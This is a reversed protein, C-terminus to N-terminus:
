PTPERAHLEDASWIQPSAAVIDPRPERFWPRDMTECRPGDQAPDTEDRLTVRLDLGAETPALQLVVPARGDSEVCLEFGHEPVGHMCFPHIRETEKRLEVTVRGSDDAVFDATEHVVHHPASSWVFRVRAGSVPAGDEGVVTIAASPRTVIEREVGTFLVAFLLAVFAGGLALLGCGLFGAWGLVRKATRDV